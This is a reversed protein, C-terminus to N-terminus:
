ITIIIRIFLNKFNRYLLLFFFTVLKLYNKIVVFIFYM